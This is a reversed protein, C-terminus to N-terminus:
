IPNNKKRFNSIPDGAALGCKPDGKPEFICNKTNTMLFRIKFTKTYLNM